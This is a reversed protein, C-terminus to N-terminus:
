EGGPEELKELGVSSGVVGQSLRHTSEFVGCGECFHFSVAAVVSVSGLEFHCSAGDDGVDFFFVVRKLPNFMTHFRIPEVFTERGEFPPHVDALFEGATVVEDCAPGVRTSVAPTSWPTRGSSPTINGGSCAASSSGHYMCHDRSKAASICWRRKTRSLARRVLGRRIELRGHSQAESHRQSGCPAQKMCSEHKQGPEPEKGGTLGGREYSITWDSGIGASQTLLHGSEYRTKNDQRVEHVRVRIM